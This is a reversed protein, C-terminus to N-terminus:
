ISNKATMQNLKDFYIQSLTLFVGPAEGRSAELGVKSPPPRKYCYRLKNNGEV